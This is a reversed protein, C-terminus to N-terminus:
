KINFYKKEYYNVTIIKNIYIDSITM